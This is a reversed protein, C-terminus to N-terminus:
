GTITVEVPQGSIPTNPIRIISNDMRVAQVSAIGAAMGRLIIKDCTVTCAMIDPDSSSWRVDQNATGRLQLGSSTRVVPVFTHEEGIALSWAWDEIYVSQVVPFLLDPLNVNVSDPVYVVRTVDEMGELLVEYKACRILGIELYGESDTRSLTREKLVANGDLVLPSFKPIFHITCGEFPSNTGDKFYGYAVCIRPDKAIPPVLADGHITFYNDLTDEVDILVPSDFAVSQKYCRVQYPSQETPLLFSAIGLADTPVQSHLLRGQADLLRVLVGELPASADTKNCVHIDVPVYSM